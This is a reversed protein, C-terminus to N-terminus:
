APAPSRGDVPAIAVLMGNLVGLVMVALAAGSAVYQDRDIKWLRWLPKPDLAHTMAAIVVAALVPEPLRAVQEGALGILVAVGIASVLGAIRSAAGAAENASTASFGAGVPMGRVLGSALNAAGIALLERNAIPSLMMM